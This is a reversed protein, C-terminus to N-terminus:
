SAKEKKVKMAALGRPTREIEFIVRDDEEIEETINNVHVFYKEQTELDRIFGFGKDTNFFVVKGLREPSEDEETRRPVSIEIQEAKIAKKKQTEDPPTDSIVGNEDVYAMMNDLGGGDSSARREEKKLRKEERKKIRKKEREKKSFTEQSKGM